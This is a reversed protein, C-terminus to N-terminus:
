FWLFYFKWLSLEKTTSNKNYFYGVLFIVLGIALFFQYIKMYDIVKEDNLKATKLKKISSLLKKIEKGDLTSLYFEGGSASALKRLLKINLRSVVTKGNQDKKYGIKSGGIDFDPIPGGQPTGVGITYIIINKNKAAEVAKQDHIEGDSFIIIVKDGSFSSEFSKEALNIASYINTGGGSIMDTDMSNLFLSAMDYDETLPMQVYSDSSFPIFGIRDRDLTTILRSINEKTRELRSPKVDTALMSKSVDVLIFIDLGRKEVIRFGKSIKPSLLSFVIFALGILMLIIKTIKSKTEINLKISEIIKKRKKLGILFIFAAILCIVFYFINTFSDFKM